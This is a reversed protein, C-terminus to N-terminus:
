FDVNSIVLRKFPGQLAQFLFQFAFPDHLDQLRSLIVFLRALLPTTLGAHRLRSFETELVTRQKTKPLLLIAGCARLKLDPVTSPVM